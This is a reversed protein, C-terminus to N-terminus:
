QFRKNERRKEFRIEGSNPKKRQLIRYNFINNPLVMFPKKQDSLM